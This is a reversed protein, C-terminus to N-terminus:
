KKAKEFMKCTYILEDLLNIWAKREEPTFEGEVVDLHKEALIDLKRLFLNIALKTNEDEVGIDDLLKEFEKHFEEESVTEDTALRKLTEFSAVLQDAYEPHKSLIGILIGSLAFSVLDPDLKKIVNKTKNWYKGM